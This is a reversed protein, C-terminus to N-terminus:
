RPRHSGCISRGPSPHPVRSTGQTPPAPAGEGTPPAYGLPLAAPKPGTVPPEFGGAGAELLGIVSDGRAATTIAAPRPVRIRELRGFCRSGIRPRRRTSQTSAARSGSRASGKTTTEEGSPLLSRSPVSEAPTVIATCCRGSPVPSATGEARSASSSKVPSRSTSAPSVGRIVDSSRSPSTSSCRRHRAETVTREKSGPSGPRYPRMRRSSEARRTPM